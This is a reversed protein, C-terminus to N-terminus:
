KIDVINAELLDTKSLKRPSVQKDDVKVVYGDKVYVTPQLEQLLILLFFGVITTGVIILKSYNADTM